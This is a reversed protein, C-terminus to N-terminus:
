SKVKVPVDRFPDLNPLTGQDFKQDKLWLMQTEAEKGPAGNFVMPKSRNSQPDYPHLLVLVPTEPSPNEASTHKGRSNYINEAVLRDTGKEYGYAIRFLQTLKSDFIQGSRINGSKDRRFICLCKLQRQGNETLDYSRAEMVTNEPNRQFQTITGDVNQIEHTLALNTDEARDDTTQAAKVDASRTAAELLVAKEQQAQKRLHITYAGLLVSCGLVGSGVIPILKSRPM